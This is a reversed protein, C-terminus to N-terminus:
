PSLNSERISYFALYFLAKFKLKSPQIQIWPRQFNVTPVRDAKQGIHVKSQEDALYLCLKELCFPHGLILSHLFAIYEKKGLLALMKIDTKVPKRDHNKWRKGIVDEKLTL